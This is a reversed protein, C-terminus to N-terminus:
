AVASAVEEEEKGFLKKFCEIVVIIALGVLLVAFIIQMGDSSFKFADTGIKGIIRVIIQALATLTVALMFFMPVYLMAGPKKTRKLFVALACLALASLLQNASGFLAWINQYGNTSLWYGFVLTVVTAFYKNTFVRQWVPMHVEDTRIWACELFALRGGAVSDLCTLAFASVALSHDHLCREHIGLVGLFGAVASSFIVQSKGVSDRM